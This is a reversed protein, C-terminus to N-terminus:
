PHIFLNNNLVDFYHFREHMFIVNGRFSYFNQEGGGGVWNAHM